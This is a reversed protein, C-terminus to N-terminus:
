DQRFVHGTPFEDQGNRAGVPAYPAGPLAQRHVLWWALLCILLFIALLLWSLWGDSFTEDAKGVKPERKKRSV